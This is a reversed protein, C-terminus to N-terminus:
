KKCLYESKLQRNKLRLRKSIAERWEPHEKYKEKLTKSIKERTEKSKPKGILGNSKGNKKRSEVIHKIHEPSQPGKPIGKTKNRKKESSEPSMKFGLTSGAIPSTNFYPIESDQYHFRWYWSQERSLLHKKDIYEFSEIIEFVLDNNGYKDVHRQLKVSHHEGRNIDDEHHNFRRLIDHSSGVYVREPKIKSQIMYVGCIKEM